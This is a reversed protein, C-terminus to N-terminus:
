LSEANTLKNKIKLFFFCNSILIEFGNWYSTQNGTNDLDAVYYVEKAMTKLDKYEKLWISVKLTSCIPNISRGYTLVTLVV